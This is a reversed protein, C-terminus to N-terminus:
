VKNDKQRKIKEAKLRFRLDLHSFYGVKRIQVTKDTNKHQMTRRVLLAQMSVAEKVQKKPIGLKDSVINILRQQNTM